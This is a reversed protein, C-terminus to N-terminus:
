IVVSSLSLRERENRQIGRITNPLQLLLHMTIKTRAITCITDTRRPYPHPRLYLRLRQWTSSTCLWSSPSAFNRCRRQCRRRDWRRQRPSPAMHKSSPRSRAPALVGLEVPLPSTRGSRSTYRSSGCMQMLGQPKVAANATPQTTELTKVTGTTVSTRGMFPRRLIRGQVYHRIVCRVVYGTVCRVVYGTVYRVVYRTRTGPDDKASKGQELRVSLSLSLSVCTCMCMWICMCVCVCVCMSCMGM